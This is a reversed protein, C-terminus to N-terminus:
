LGLDELKVDLFKSKKDKEYCNELYRLGPIILDRKAELFGLVFNCTCCLLGRVKLTEHDHDVSLYKRRPDSEGKRCVACVGGQEELMKEYDDLSIGYHTKLQADKGKCNRARKHWYETQKDPDKYSM